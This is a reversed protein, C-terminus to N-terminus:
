RPALLALAALIGLAALVLSGIGFMAYQLANDVAVQFRTRQRDLRDSTDTGRLWAPKVWDPPHFAWRVPILGSFLAGGGALLVLPVHSDLRGQGLLIVVSSLLFFGAIPIPAFPANRLYPPLAPNEIQDAMRRVRGAAFLVGTLLSMGGM